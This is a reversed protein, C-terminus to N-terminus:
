NLVLGAEGTPTTPTVTLKYKDGPLGSVRVLYQGTETLSINELHYKGDAGLTFVGADTVTSGSPNDLELTAPGAAAGLPKITVSLLTDKVAHLTLAAFLSDDVKAKQSQRKAKRKLKHSTLIRYNGLASGDGSVRLSYSGHDPAKFTLTKQKGAQTPLNKTWSKLVQKDADLIEFTIRALADAALSEDVAVLKFKLKEKKTAEFSAWDEDGESEIEGTLEAGPHFRPPGDVTVTLTESLYEIGELAGSAVNWTGNYGPEITVAAFHIPLNYLAVAQPVSFLAQGQGNADLTGTITGFLGSNLNAVVLELTEDPALEAFRSGNIGLQPSQSLSALLAFARGGLGPLELDFSVSEGIAAGGLVSISPMDFIRAYAAGDGSNDHWATIMRQGSQVLCSKGQHQDGATNQHATFEDSLPTGFRDFLRVLVDLDGTADSEWTVAFNGVYDMSIQPDQQNGLTTNNVLFQAGQPVGSSDFLRAFIGNGDGDQGSEDQWVVVFDGLASMAVTPDRQMGTSDTNVLQSAGLAAGDQDFLRVLVERPDGTAGSADVYACVFLGNRSCAVSPDIQTASSAENILFESSLATGDRSFIRGMCGSSGDTGTDAWAVMVRGNVMFAAHPEFQSDITTLNLIQDPSYATGDAQFFRGGAAMLDGDNGNRDSFGVFFDGTSPDMALYTEDQTGYSISTNVLEDDGLPQGDRDLRRVYIDGQAYSLAFNGRDDCGIWVDHQDNATRSTVVFETGVPNVQHALAPAALFVSLFLVPHISRM